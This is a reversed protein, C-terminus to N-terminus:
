QIFTNKVRVSRLFYPIFICCALLSRVIVQFAPQADLVHVERGMEQQAILIWTVVSIIANVIYQIIMMRPFWRKRRYLLVLNIIVLVSLIISSIFGFWLIPRIVETYVQLDIGRSGEWRAPDMIVTVNSLDSLLFVLSAWLSIQIFILWGGLGSIDQRKTRAGTTTSYVEQEEESGANPRNM